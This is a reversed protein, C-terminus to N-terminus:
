RRGAIRYRHTALPVVVALLLLSWLITAAVPHTLPWVDSVPAGPNGFLQRCAAVLASVPNWEAITRLWSPMGETPVFTNSLMTVPFFLPTLRDATEENRVLLGLLVGLWNFAYTFLLLVGFGALTSWLGNHVRWGVILGAIAMIAMGVAGVVLDAGTHGFPVASRAMPMSRYRDMVGKGNDAAVRAITVMVAATAGMAFLGPMLFERYNGGGPVPIASGFIYGFIVIMIVPSILVGVMEGPSHRLHTLNRRMVTWGDALAWGMANM